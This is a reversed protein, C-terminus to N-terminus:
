DVAAWGPGGDSKASTGPLLSPPSGVRSRRHELYLLPQGVLAQNILAEILQTFAPGVLPSNPALSPALVQHMAAGWGPRGM